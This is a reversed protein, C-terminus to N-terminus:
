DLKTTSKAFCLFAILTFCDPKLIRSLDLDKSSRSVDSAARLPRMALKGAIAVVLKEEPHRVDPASHTGWGSESPAQAHGILNPRSSNAARSFAKTETIYTHELAQSADLAIAKCCDSLHSHAICPM